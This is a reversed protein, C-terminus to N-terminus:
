KRGNKIYKTSENPLTEIEEKLDFLFSVIWRLQDGIHISRLYEYAKEKSEFSELVQM